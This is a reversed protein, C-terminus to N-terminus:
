HMIFIVGLKIVPTRSKERCSPVFVNVRDGDHLFINLSFSRRPTVESEASVSGALKRAEAMAVGETVSLFTWLSPPSACKLAAENADGHVNIFLFRFQLNAPPLHWSVRLTGGPYGQTHDRVELHECLATIAEPVGGWGQIPELM